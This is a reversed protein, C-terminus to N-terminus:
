TSKIHGDTVEYVSNSTVPNWLKESLLYLFLVYIYFHTAYYDYIM